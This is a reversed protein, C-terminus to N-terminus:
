KIVGIIGSKISNGAQLFFLYEGEPLQMNSKDNGKWEFSYVGPSIETPNNITCISRGTLSKFELTPLMKSRIRFFISKSKYVANSSVSFQEITESLIVPQLYINLNMDNDTLIRTLKGEAKSKFDYVTIYLTDGSKWGNRFNASNIYWTSGSIGCGPSQDTLGNEVNGNLFSTFRFETEQNLETSLIFNGSILHPTKPQSFVSLSISLLILLNFLKM